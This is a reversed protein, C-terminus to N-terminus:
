FQNKTIIKYIFNIVIISVTFIFSFKLIAAGKKFKFILHLILFIFLFITPILAPYMQISEWVNGKLLEIFSRQMGCGPCELGFYKKYFCPSQNRELWDII